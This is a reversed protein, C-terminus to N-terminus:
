WVKLILMNENFRGNPVAQVAKIDSIMKRTNPRNADMFKKMFDEPKRVTKSMSKKQDFGLVSNGKITLCKSYEDAVLWIVKRKKVDFLFAETAQHLKTPSVSTVGLSEHKKMYKVKSVIKEVPVPKKLRVKKTAQKINIYGNLESIIAEILNVTYRMQMKSYNQFNENLDTNKGSIAENYEALIDQWYKIAPTVHQPLINRESLASIVRKNLDFNKPCGQDIFEDFIAEAESLAENACERMVEQINAKRERIVVAGENEVEDKVGAKALNVLTDVCEQIYAKQKETLILGRTACRAAWGATTVMRNDPSKRVLRVINKDTKNDELYRILFQKADKHTCFRSYWNYTDTLVRLRNEETPQNDQFNPEPGYRLVDVDKPKFDSVLTNGSNALAIGKKGVRVTKKAKRTKIMSAKRSM